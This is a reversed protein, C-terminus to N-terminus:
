AQILNKIYDMKKPDVKKFYGPNAKEYKELHIIFKELSPDETELDIMIVNRIKKSDNLLYQYMKEELELLQEYNIDVIYNYKLSKNNKDDEVIDVGYRQIYIGEEQFINLIGGIFKMLENQKLNSNKLIIFADLILDTDEHKHKPMLKNWYNLYNISSDFDGLLFNNEILLCNNDAYLDNYEYSKKAKEISEKLFGLRTLSIAYNFYDSAKTDTYKLALEHNYHLKDINKELAAIVGFIKYAKNPFKMLLKKAQRKYRNLIFPDHREQYSLNNLEEIIEISIPKPKPSM